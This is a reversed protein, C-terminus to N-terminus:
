YTAVHPYMRLIKRKLLHLPVHIAALGLDRYEHLEDFIFSKATYYARHKNRKENTDCEEFPQPPQSLDDMALAVVECFLDIECM